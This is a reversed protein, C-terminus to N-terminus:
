WFLLPWDRKFVIGKNYIKMYSYLKMFPYCIVVIIYLVLLFWLWEFGNEPFEDPFYRYCFYWFSVDYGSNINGRYMRGIYATTIVILVTCVILPICLRLTKKWIWILPLLLRSTKIDEKPQNFEKGLGAARGSIYFFIPM